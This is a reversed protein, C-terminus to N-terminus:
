RRKLADEINKKLLLKARNHKAIAEWKKLPCSICTWLYKLKADNANSILILNDDDGDLGSERRTLNDVMANLRLKPVNNLRCYTIFQCDECTLEKALLNEMTKKLSDRKYGFYSKIHHRSLVEGISFTPFGHDNAKMFDFNPYEKAGKVTGMCGMMQHFMHSTLKKSPDQFGVEYANFVAELQSYSRTERTNSGKLCALLEPSKIHIQVGNLDNHRTQQVKLNEEPTRDLSVDMTAASYM